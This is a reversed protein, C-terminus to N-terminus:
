QKVKYINVRDGRKNMFVQVPAQKIEQMVLAINAEEKKNVRLAIYDYQKWRGHAITNTDLYAPLKQYFQDGFHNSYYMLHASNAYLSAHAPVNQALWDGADRIYTKSYGFNFIGGVSSICMLIIAFILFIRHSRSKWNHLLNDLAFPVWLMLVLSLAILYRKSLFLHEAFFGFSILVNMVLYGSIVIMAPRAFTAAKSFWAYVLLLTYVWSLNGIVNILYWVILTVFLVLGADRASEPTLIYQTVAAQTRQYQELMLTFGHQIQNAIEPLRGLKDLSAQPHAVLWVSLALLVIMVPVYLTIFHRLKHRWALRPLLLSLFPIALLFMAGEIRFLTALMLSGSWIGATMWSPNRFYRLLFLLSTLYFAWFGHDRVIYQRVINFEHSLLIVAAALWLVRRSGGLEKVIAIFTVVSILTFFSNLLFASFVYSLQTLQVLGYILMSYFPWASQACLHMAARLGNNGIENASLLYCIADPNLVTENSSIWFSLLLSALAAVAYIVYDRQHFAALKKM